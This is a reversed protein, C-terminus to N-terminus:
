LGNLIERKWTVLAKLCCDRNFYPGRDLGSVFTVWGELRPEMVWGRISGKGRRSFGPHSQSLHLHVAYICVRLMSNIVKDEDSRRGFTEGGISDCLALQKM